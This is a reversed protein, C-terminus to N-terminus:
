VSNPDLLHYLVSQLTSVRIHEEKVKAIIENIHSCYFDIIANVDCAAAIPIFVKTISRRRVDLTYRSGDMYVSYVKDLVDKQGSVGLSNHYLFTKIKEIDNRIKIKIKVLTNM